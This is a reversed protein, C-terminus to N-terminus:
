TINRSREEVTIGAAELAARVKVRDAEEGRLDHHIISGTPGHYALLTIERLSGFVVDGHNEGPVATMPAWEARWTLISIKLGKNQLEKIFNGLSDCIITKPDTHQM